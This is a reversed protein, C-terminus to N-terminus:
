FDVGLSLIGVSDDSGPHFVYLGLVAKGLNFGVFPGNQIARDSRYLQTRQTVVGFRLWQWPSYALESWAYFFSDDKTSLDVVWEAEIYWDFKRWALSAEVGPAVGNLQGFVAGVMPTVEWALSEGGAFRRGAWLSGTDLAEYNYRAELHLNDKRAQGILLGFNDDQRPVYYMGTLSFEWPKGPRLSAGQGFAPGAAGLLVAIATAACAAASRLWRV